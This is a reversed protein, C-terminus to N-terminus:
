VGGSGMEKDMKCDTTALPGAQRPPSVYDCATYLARNGLIDTSHNTGRSEWSSPSCRAQSPHEPEAQVTPISPPGATLFDDIYHLSNTIGNQRLVWELVDSINQAGFQAWLLATEM